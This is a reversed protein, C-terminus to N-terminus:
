FKRVIPLRVGIITGYMCVDGTTKTETEIAANYKEREVSAIRISQDENLTNVMKM